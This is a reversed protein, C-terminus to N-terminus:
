NQVLTKPQQPENSLWLGTQSQPTKRRIRRCMSHLLSKKIAVVVVRAGQVPGTELVAVLVVEAAVQVAVPVVRVVEQVAVPVVQVAVPVVRVVEQAVLLHARDSGVLGDVQAARLAGV